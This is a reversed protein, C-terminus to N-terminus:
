KQQQINCAKNNLFVLSSYFIGIQIKVNFLLNVYVRTYWLKYM